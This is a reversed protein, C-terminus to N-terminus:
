QSYYAEGMQVLLKNLQKLDPETQLRSKEVSNELM